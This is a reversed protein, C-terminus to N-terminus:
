ASTTRPLARRAKRRQKAERRLRNGIKQLRTRNNRDRTTHRM